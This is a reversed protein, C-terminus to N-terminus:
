KGEEESSPSNSEHHKEKYGEFPRALYRITRLKGRADYYGYHGKVTGDKLREELRFQRNKRCNNYAIILDRLYTKLIVLKKQSM